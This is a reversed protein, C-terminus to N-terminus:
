CPALDRAPRVLDLSRARGSGPRCRFARGLRKARQDHDRRGSRECSTDIGGLPQEDESRWHSHRWAARIASRHSRSCGTDVAELTLQDLDPRHALDLVTQEVTTVFGDVITTRVRQVELRGVTRKVFRVLGFPTLLNARQRPVAVAATALARPVAGLLRAAAMGMVAVEQAGYDVAAVGLAIEEIPPTWRRGRQDEPVVAYYGHAVKALVGTGVMRGFEPVPNTYRDALDRPRVVRNDLRALAEPVGAARKEM